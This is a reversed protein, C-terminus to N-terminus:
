NRVGQCTLNRRYVTVLLSLDAGSLLVFLDRVIRIFSFPVNILFYLFSLFVSLTYLPNFNVGKNTLSSDAKLSLSTSSDGQSLLMNPVRETLMSLLM